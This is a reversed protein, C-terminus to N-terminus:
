GQDQGTVKREYLNRYDEPTNMNYFLEDIKGVRSLEEEGVKLVRVQSYFRHIQRIDAKLCEGIAKLCERSYVACLPEWRGNIYPVVVDYGASRELLFVALDAKFLPMDTAVVFAWSKQTALLGAHIGGLPGMGPYIDQVEVTGPIEYKTTHNSAIIIEDVVQRMESVMHEIFTENSYVMLTKDSGMRSSLGGALIIGSAEM